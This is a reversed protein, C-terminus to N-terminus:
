PVVAYGTQVFAAINRAKNTVFDTLRERDRATLDSLGAKGTPFSLLLGDFFSQTRINPVPVLDFGDIYNSPVPGRVKLIGSVVGFEATILTWGKKYEFVLDDPHTDLRTFKLANTDRKRVAGVAAHVMQVWQGNETGVFYEFDHAEATSFTVEDGIQALAPNNKNFGWLKLAAEGGHLAGALTLERGTTFNRVKVTMDV